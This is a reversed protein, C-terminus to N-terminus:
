DSVLRPSSKPPIKLRLNQRPKLKRKFINLKPDKWTPSPRLIQITLQGVDYARILAQQTRKAPFLILKVEGIPFIRAEPNNGLLEVEVPCGIFAASFKTFVKMAYFGRFMNLLSDELASKAPISEKSEKKDDDSIDPDETEQISAADKERDEQEQWKTQEYGKQVAKETAKRLRGALVKAVEIPIEPYRNMLKMFTDRTLLLCELPEIAIVSASRPENDIIALDGFFENRGLEAIAVPGEGKDIEVKVKGSTIFFVGLGTQGQTIVAEGQPYHRTVCRKAIKKIIRKDLSEFLDLKRVIEVDTPM